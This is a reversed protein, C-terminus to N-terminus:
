WCAALEVKASPVTTVSVAVAAGPLVNVLQLPPPQLLLPGHTTVMVESVVTVAVKVTIV